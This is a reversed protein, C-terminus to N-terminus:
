VVASEKSAKIYLSGAMEKIIPIKELSVGAKRVLRILLRPTQPHLFDFPEIHIDKFEYKELLKRLAHRFFATEDPSDGAMKKLAPVNKQLFVQINAMNPETFYITGGPKLIRSFEGLARNIDLHHLVSSGIITDFTNDSFSLQCADEIKFTVKDGHANEQAVSLLDHSIDVATVHADTKILEKTFYGVGCGIELVEMDPTIHSILM